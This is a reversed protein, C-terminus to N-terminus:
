LRARSLCWGWLLFLVVMVAGIALSLLALEGGGPGSGFVIPFPGIFVVGGVSGNGGQLSGALVLVVGVLIVLMGVGLFRNM